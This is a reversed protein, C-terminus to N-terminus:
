WSRAKVPFIKENEAEPDETTWTERVRGVLEHRQGGDTYFILGRRTRFWGKCLRWGECMPINFGHDWNWGIVQVFSENGDEDLNHNVEIWDFRRDEPKPLSSAWVGIVLLVAAM